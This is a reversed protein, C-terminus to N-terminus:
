SCGSAGARQRRRPGGGSLAQAYNEVLRDGFWLPVHGLLEQATHTSAVLAVYLPFAVTLLGLGLM